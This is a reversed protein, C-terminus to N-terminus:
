KKKNTLKIKKQESRTLSLINNEVNKTIVSGAGIISNTGIIVPAVLSSNSGIFSKDKIITKYKKKGDYNCTITGAGINVGMGMTTDGIYSLHNIKSYKNIKSKKIEVFNGVKSGEELVAGPRIRAYPGVVVKNKITAGEIHSFSKVISGNGITVNSGIVVYPEITVNKGFKTDKSLFVTEPAILRVGQRMAKKRLQDQMINEAVGLEYMDNIGLAAKSDKATVLKIRHNYKKSLKVIDTLYFEKKINNNQIQNVLNLAKSGLAMVGSNCITIKRQEKNADKFEVIEDVVGNKEIIIGYSYNDPCNFGLITLDNNRLQLKIKKLEGLDILPNDGYLILLKTNKSKNQKQFVQVAHGTGLQPEQLLFHINSYKKKLHLLDRNIMISIKSPRLLKAKMIVHDIMAIGLVAHLVKPVDSNMRTGKGAALILVQLNNAM